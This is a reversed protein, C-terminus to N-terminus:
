AMVKILPRDNPMVVNMQLTTKTRKCFGMKPELNVAKVRSCIGTTKTKLRNLSMLMHSVLGNIQVSYM